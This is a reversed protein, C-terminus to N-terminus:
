MAVFVSATVVCVGDVVVVKATSLVVTEDDIVGSNVVSCLVLEEV